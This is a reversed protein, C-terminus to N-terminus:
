RRENPRIEDYTEDVVFGFARYASNSNNSLERHVPWLHQITAVAMGEFAEHPLRIERASSVQEAVGYRLQMAKEYSGPTPCSRMPSQPSDLGVVTAITEAILSQCAKTLSQM